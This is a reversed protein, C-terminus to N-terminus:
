LDCSSIGNPCLVKYEIWLPQELVESYEGKFITNQFFVKERKQALLLTPLLLLILLLKKM